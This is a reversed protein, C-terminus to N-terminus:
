LTLITKWKESEMAETIEVFPKMMEVYSEMELLKRDSPIIEAKKLELFTACLPQQQEVVRKVLYYTSNWM